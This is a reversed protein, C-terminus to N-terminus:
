VKKWTIKSKHETELSEIKVCKNEYMRKKPIVM